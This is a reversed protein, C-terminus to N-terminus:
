NYSEYKGSISARMVDNLKQLRNMEERERIMSQALTEGVRQYGEFPECAARAYEEYAAGVEPAEEILRRKM